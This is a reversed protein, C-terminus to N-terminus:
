LVIPRRSIRSGIPQEARTTPLVLPVNPRPWSGKRCNPMFPPARAQQLDENEMGLETKAKNVAVDMLDPQVQVFFQLFFHCLEQFRSVAADAELQGEVVGASPADDADALVDWPQLSDGAPAPIANPRALPGGAPALSPIEIGALSARPSVM